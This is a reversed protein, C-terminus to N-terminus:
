STHLQQTKGNRPRIRPEYGPIQCVKDKAEQITISKTGYIELIKKEWLGQEDSWFIHLVHGYKSSLSAKYKDNEVNALAMKVLGPPSQLPDHWVRGHMEILANIKPSYIDYAVSRGEFTIRHELSAEIDVSKIMEMLERHPRSIRWKSILMAGQKRAMEIFKPSNKQGVSIKKGRVKKYIENFENKDIKLISRILESSKKPSDAYSYAWEPWMKNIKAKFQNFSVDGHEVSEEWLKVLSAEFITKDIPKKDKCAPNFRGSREISSKRASSPRIANPPRPSDLRWDERRSFGFFVDLAWDRTALAEEGEAM